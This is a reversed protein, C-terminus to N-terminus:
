HLVNKRTGSTPIIKKFLCIKHLPFTHQFLVKQWLDVYEYNTKRRAAKLALILSTCRSFMSRLTIRCFLFFITFCPLRFFFSRFCSTNYKFFPASQGQWCSSFRLLWYRIMPRLTSLCYRSVPMWLHSLVLLSKLFAM